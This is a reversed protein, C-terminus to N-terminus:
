RLGGRSLIGVHIADAEEGALWVTLPQPWSVQLQFEQLREVEHFRGIAKDFSEGELFRMAYCAGGAEDQM